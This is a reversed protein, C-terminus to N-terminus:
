ALPQRFALWAKIRMVVDPATAAIIGGRDFTGAYPFPDGAADVIMGGAEALVLHAPAIDWDRVVM